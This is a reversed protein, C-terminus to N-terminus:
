GLVHAANSPRFRAHRSLPPVFRVRAAGGGGRSACVGSSSTILVHYPRLTRGCEGGAGRASAVASATALELASELASEAMGGEGEGAAAAAAAAVRAASNYLQRSDGRAVITSEVIHASEAHQLSGRTFLVSSTLVAAMLAALLLAVFTRGSVM